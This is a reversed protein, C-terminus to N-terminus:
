PGHAFASFLPINSAKDRRGTWRPYFRRGNELEASDFTAFLNDVDHERRWKDSDSFQKLAAGPDFSRARLFRRPSISGGRLRCRRTVCLLTPDDLSPQAPDYLKAETLAQKFAM